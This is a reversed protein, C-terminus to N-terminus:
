HVISTDSETVCWLSSVFKLWNRTTCRHFVTMFVLCSYAHNACSKVRLLKKLTAFICDPTAAPRAQSQPLKYRRAVRGPLTYCCGVYSLKPCYIGMKRFVLVRTKLKQYEEKGILAVSPHRIFLYNNFYKM